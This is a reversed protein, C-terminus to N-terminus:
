DIGFRIQIRGKNPREIAIGHIRIQNLSEVYREPFGVVFEVRVCIISCPLDEIKIGM